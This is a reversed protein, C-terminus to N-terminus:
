AVPRVRVGDRSVGTTRVALGPVPVGKPLSGKM